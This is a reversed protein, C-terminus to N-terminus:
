KNLERTLLEAIENLVATKGQLLGAMKSLESLDLDTNAIANNGETIINDREAVIYNLLAGALDTATTM